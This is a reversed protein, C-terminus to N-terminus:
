KGNGAEEGTLKAIGTNAFTLAKAFDGTKLMTIASQFASTAALAAIKRQTQAQQAQLEAM